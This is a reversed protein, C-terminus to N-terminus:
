EWSSPLAYTPFYQQMMRDCYAILTPHSEAATRVPTEFRKTLTCVLFAFTTADAGCPTQGMLYPNDGLVAAVANLSQQALIAMEEQSHRGLGQGWLTAQIKNRVKKIIFPRLVAPIKKFFHAFGKEFNDDNLWRAGVVMFYLHEELMKAVAFSIGKDRPSLGQDFDYGYKKELHLRIFTSDAIITGDDNIYPLKKKPAKRVDARQTQYPVGSMKLLLEAKMVFPSPDPLGLAPGFTYLTIM